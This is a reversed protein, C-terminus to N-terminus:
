QAYALTTDVSGDPKFRMIDQVDAAHVQRAIICGQLDVQSARQGVFCVVAFVARGM